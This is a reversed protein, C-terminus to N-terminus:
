LKTATDVDIKKGLIALSERTESDYVHLSGGRYFNHPGPNPGGTSDIRQLARLFQALDHAFNDLNRIPAIAASEGEIWGYISWHWPYEATPMGIALPTPIPLPLYPALKPLWKQEIAVKAAYEAGSPMRLLM